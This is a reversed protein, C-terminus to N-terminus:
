HFYKQFLTLEAGPFLSNNITQKSVGPCLGAGDARILVSFSWCESGGEHTFVFWDLCLLEPKFGDYVDWTPFERFFILLYFFSSTPVGFILVAQTNWRERGKRGDSSICSIGATVRPAFPAVNLREEMQVAKRGSVRKLQQTLTRFHHMNFVNGAAGQSLCPVRNIRDLIHIPNRYWRDTLQTKAEAKRRRSFRSM